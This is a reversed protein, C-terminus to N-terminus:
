FLCLYVAQEDEKCEKRDESGDMIAKRYVITQPSVNKPVQYVVTGSATDEPQITYMNALTRNNADLAEEYGVIYQDL